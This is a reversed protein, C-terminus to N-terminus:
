YFARYLEKSMDMYASAFPDALVACVMNELDTLRLMCLKYLWLVEAIYLVTLLLLSLLKM